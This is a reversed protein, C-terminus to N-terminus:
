RAGARVNAFRRKGVQVLLSEAPPPVLHKPDKVVEGALKVGGQEILRRAESGSQALGAERLLVTLPLGAASWDTDVAVDPIDDPLEKKVFQKDFAARADGAAQDGHYNRVLEAALTAKAERPHGGLLEAIREPALRTLQVYWLEMVDDTISMVKGFMDNPADTLAISNNYSKSMKRGDTGNILPTTICVQRAQSEQEQLTRGFLLNFLQDTGGLEVDAKIEVSDWGQLIPYLLEHMGIPEGAQMRNAFTDRELMRAVTTRGLLKLIGGFDLSDFWESNRRVETRQMDLVLSAQEVYTRLNEEVQGRTLQPRLTNRGTPDGVMATADGVILVITHGLQQLDRLKLLPISHGVHLDPSSPDMGFKVRLPQGRELKKRLDKDDILDVAGRAFAALSAEVDIM